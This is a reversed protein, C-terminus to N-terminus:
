KTNKFINKLIYLEEETIIKYYIPSIFPLLRIFRNKVCIVICCKTYTTKTDGIDVMDRGVISSELLETLTTHLAKLIKISLNNYVLSTLAPTYVIYPNLTYNLTIINELLTCDKFIKFIKTKKTKKNKLNLKKSKM